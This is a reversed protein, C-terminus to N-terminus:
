IKIFNEGNNDGKNTKLGEGEREKKKKIIKNPLLKKKYIYIIM